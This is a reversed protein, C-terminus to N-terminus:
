ACAREWFSLSRRNVPSGAARNRETVAAHFARAEEPGLLDRLAALIRTIRLHNHDHPALWHGTGAYFRAMRERAARLGALAAPDRRIAEAQAADLVPAGSVARSADPLPFLWQIFDHVTEIRGDDFALVEALLRGRGDRGQGALFAHIPGTGDPHTSM